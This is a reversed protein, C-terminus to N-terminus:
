ARAKSCRAQSPLRRSPAAALETSGHRGKWCRAPRRWGCRGCRRGGCPGEAPQGRGLLLLTSTLTEAKVAILGVRRCMDAGAEEVQLRDVVGLRVLRVVCWVRGCIRRRRGADDREVGEGADAMLPGHQQGHRDM